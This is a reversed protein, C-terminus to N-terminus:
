CTSFSSIVSCAHHLSDAKTYLPSVSVTSDLPATRLGLVRKSVRLSIVGAKLSSPSDIKSPRVNVPNVSHIAPTSGTPSNISSVQNGGKGGETVM